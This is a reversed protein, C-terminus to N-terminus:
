QVLDNQYYAKTVRRVMGDEKTMVFLNGAYQDYGIRMHARKINSMEQISSKKGNNIITLDYITSDSLSQNINMYFLRGTVIDGFVYKDKLEEISGKYVFGGSIAKGDMHDFQGFPLNYAALFDKSVSYVTKPDTKIDIGFTGEIVSWGHDKGKQAINIEEVNSEGIDAVIMRKEHTMDWSFRHPNRFGYAWIERKVTPDSHTIFPNDSSIGYTGTQSNTGRPDIRIITGLISRISHSLEPKKLNISGGDGIGIYLQGYDSDDKDVPAFGIDQFGHATTPTNIRLVERRTGEFSEANVNTSSWEDLVWQLSVGFSNAFDKDNIAAKGNYHEAHTTYILGNELLNPHLDFSGLGTAIGPEFIFEKIRGRVDLYPTAKENEVKYIVGMQDSIFLTGDGSPHARVTALGKNHFRDKALPVEIFDELEIVLGSHVIPAVVRDGKTFQKTTDILLPKLGRRESEHNIYSLINSIDSPELFDFSPMVTKYREKLFNARLNGAEVVLSPNRVFEILKQKEILATIGGLKPGIGELELSHCSSCHSVFLKEGNIIDSTDHSYRKEIMVEAPNEDFYGNECMWYYVACILLIIPLAYKM